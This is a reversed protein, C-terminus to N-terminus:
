ALRELCYGSATGQGLLSKVRYNFPALRNNLDHVIVSVIHPNVDSQMGWVRAFIQERKYLPKGPKVFLSLIEAQRPALALPKGEILALNSALDVTVRSEDLNTNGCLPCSHGDPM